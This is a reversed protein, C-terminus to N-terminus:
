AELRKARRSAYTTILLLTLLLPLSALAWFLLYPLIIRDDVGISEDNRVSLNLISAVKYNDSTAIGFEIRGSLTTHGSTASLSSPVDSYLFHLSTFNVMGAIDLNPLLLSLDLKNAYPLHLRLDTGNVEEIVQQAETGSYLVIECYGPFSVWLGGDIQFRQYFGGVENSILARSCNILVRDMKKVQIVRVSGYTVNQISDRLIIVSLPSSSSPAEIESIMSNARISIRGSLNASSFAIRRVDPLASGNQGLILGSLGLVQTVLDPNSRLLDYINIYTLTGNGISMKTVLPVTANEGQLSSTMQAGQLLGLSHVRTAPILASDSGIVRTVTVLTGISRFIKNAFFNFGDTNFIMLQGGNALFRAYDNADIAGTPGSRSTGGLAFTFPGRYYLGFRAEDITENLDLVTLGNVELIQRSANVSVKIRNTGSRLWELVDIGETPYFVRRSGDVLLMYAKAMSSQGLELLLIRCHEPDIFGYVFGFYSKVSIPPQVTILFQGSVGSSNTNPILYGSDSSRGDGGLLLGSKLSWTGNVFAYDGTIGSARSRTENIYSEALFSFLSREEDQDAPIAPDQFLFLTKSKFLSADTESRATFRAGLGSLILVPDFSTATTRNPPVVLVNESEPVLGDRIETEFITYEKNSFIPDIKSLSSLYIYSRNLEGWDNNNIQVLVKGKRGSLLLDTMEPSSSNFLLWSERLHNSPSLALPLTANTSHVVLTDKESRYYEDLFSIAEFADKSPLNSHTLEEVRVNITALYGNLGYISVLSVLLLGLLKDSRFTGLFSGVEMLGVVAILSISIDMLDVLQEIGLGTQMIQLDCYSIAFLMVCSLLFIAFPAKLLEDYERDSGLFFLCSVALFGVVGSSEDIFLGALLSSVRTSQTWPYSVWSYLYISSLSLLVFGLFFGLRSSSIGSPLSIIGTKGYHSMLGTVVVNGAILLLHPNSSSFNGIVCIFFSVLNALLLIRLVGGKMSSGPFGVLLMSLFLTLLVSPYAMGLYSAVLALPLYGIVKGSERKMLILICSLLIPLIKTSQSGIYSRSSFSLLDYSWSALSPLTQSAEIGGAARRVVLLWSDGSFLFLFLVFAVSFALSRKFGFAKVLAFCSSIALLFTILSLAVQIGPLTELRVGEYLSVYLASRSANELPYSRLSGTLIARSSAFDQLSSSPFVLVSNGTVLFTGLLFFLLVLILLSIPSATYDFGAKRELFSKGSILKQALWVCGILAYFLSMSPAVPLGVVSFVISILSTLSIGVGTAVCVDDLSLLVSGGLLELVISGISFTFAVLLLVLRIPGFISNPDLTLSILPSLIVMAEFMFKFAPIATGGFSVSGSPHNEHFLGYYLSLITAASLLFSPFSLVDLSLVTFVSLSSIAAILLSVSMLANPLAQFIVALVLFYYGYTAASNAAANDGMLLRIMAVLLSVTFFLFFLCAPHREAFVFAVGIGRRAKKVAEDLMVKSNQSLYKFEQFLAGSSLRRLSKRSCIWDSSDLRTIDANSARSIGRRKDDYSGLAVNSVIRNPSHDLRM